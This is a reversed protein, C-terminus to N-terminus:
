ESNVLPARQTGSSKKVDKLLKGLILRGSAGGTKRTPDANDDLDHLMLVRLVDLAIQRLEPSMGDVLQAAESAEDSLRDAEEDIAEDAAADPSPNDTALALYSVSTELVSAIARLHRVNPTRRGSMYANLQQPKMDIHAALEKQSAIPQEALRRRRLLWSVREGFTKLEIEAMDGHYVEGNRWHVGQIPLRVM